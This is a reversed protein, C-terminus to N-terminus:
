KTYEKFGHDIIGCSYCFDPLREYLFNVWMQEFERIVLKKKRILPKSIDLKIRVQMYEGWEIEREM